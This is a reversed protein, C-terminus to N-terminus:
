HHTALQDESFGEAVEDSLEEKICPFILLLAHNIHGENAKKNNM